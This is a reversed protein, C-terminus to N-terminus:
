EVKYTTVPLLGAVAEYDPCCALLLAKWLKGHNPVKLHVLEYIIVYDRAEENFTLLEDNFSLRGKTLCSAWKTRMPRITVSVVVVGVRRAQELVREKFQHRTTVPTQTM